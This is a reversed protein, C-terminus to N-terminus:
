LGYGRSLGYVQKRPLFAADMASVGSGGSGEDEDPRQLLALIDTIRADIWRLETRLYVNSLHARSSLNRHRRFIVEAYDSLANMQYCLRDQTAADQEQVYALFVTIADALKQRITEIHTERATFPTADLPVIRIKKM